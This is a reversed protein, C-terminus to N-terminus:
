LLLYIEEECKQSKLDLITRKKKDVPLYQSNSNIIDITWTLITLLCLTVMIFVM